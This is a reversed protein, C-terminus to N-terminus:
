KYEKKLFSLGHQLFRDFDIEFNPTFINKELNNKIDILSWYKGDIVEKNDITPQTDTKIYYVYSLERERDTEIIYRDIYNIVMLDLGLEERAERIAAETPEEGLDIHGGVSSDWKNPEIDKLPSRKQLFLEEKSNFIHLHIVPHLLMSGNHCESRTAQGIVKGTEDVIPFIEETKKSGM